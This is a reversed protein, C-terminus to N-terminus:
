VELYAVADVDSDAGAVGTKVQRVVGLIHGNNEDSSTGPKRGEAAKDLLTSGEEPCTTLKCWGMQEEAAATGGIVQITILEITPLLRAGDLYMACEAALVWLIFGLVAAMYLVAQVMVALGHFIQPLGACAHVHTARPLNAFSDLLYHQADATLGQRGGVLRLRLLLQVLPERTNAILAVGSIYKILSPHAAMKDDAM